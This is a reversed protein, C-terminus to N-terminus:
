FVFFDGEAAVEIVLTGARVIVGAAADGDEFDRASQLAEDGFSFEVGARVSRKMQGGSISPM